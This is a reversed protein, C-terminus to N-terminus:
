CGNLWQHREVDVNVLRVVKLLGKHIGDNAVLRCRSRGGGTGQRGHHHISKVGVRRGQQYPQRM